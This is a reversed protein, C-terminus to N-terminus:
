FQRLPRASDLQGVVVTYPSDDDFRLDDFIGKHQNNVYLHTGEKTKVAVVHTWLGPVCSNPSFANMGGHYTKAPYRYLMRVTAPRHVLNTRNAYELLCLHTEKTPDVQDVPLLGLFTGWHLREARVWLELTFEGRNLGAIPESLKLYRQEPSPRLQLTGGYMM